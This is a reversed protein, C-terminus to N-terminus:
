GQVEWLVLLQLLPAQQLSQVLELLSEGGELLYPLQGDRERERERKSDREVDSM